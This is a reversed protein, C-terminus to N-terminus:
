RAARTAYQSLQTQVRIRRKLSNLDFFSRPFFQGHENRRLVVFNKSLDFRSNPRNETFRGSIYLTDYGTGHKLMMAMAGTTFEIDAEIRPTSTWAIGSLMSYNLAQKTDTLYIRVPNLYGLMRLPWFTWMSNQSRMREQHADSLRELDHNSYSTEALDLPKTHSNEDASYREIASASDHSGGVGWVDGPYLVVCNTQAAFRQHIDRIRNSGTNLHFNDSRCLWVFSAFPILTKPQYISLQMDIQHIKERALAQMETAEGPNGAWNAFSFQTLLVDPRAVRAAISRHFAEADPAVCDNMNLYTQNPTEIICFSDDDVTKVTFFVGGGLDVREWDALERVAKFGVARCFKAVRGDKTQQFLITITARIEAPISRVSAPSFHDPHEHSFWIYDVGRFDEPQYVTKSLLAWSDNFALGALWPDLAIRLGSTQLEFGAHNIWRIRDM